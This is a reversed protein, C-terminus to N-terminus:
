NISKKHMKMSELLVILNEFCKKDSQALERLQIKGSCWKLNKKEM